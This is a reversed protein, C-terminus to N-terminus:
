VFIKKIKSYAGAGIVAGCALIIWLYTRSRKKLRDRDETIPAITAVLRSNDLRCAEIQARDIVVAGPIKVTDRIPPIHALRYRMARVQMKLVDIIEYCNHDATDPPETTLLSDIIANMRANEETVMQLAYNFAASDSIYIISDQHITDCGYNRACFDIGIAPDYTVAKAFDSKAKKQTYCGSLILLLFIYKM